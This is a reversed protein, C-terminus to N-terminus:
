QREGFDHWHNIGYNEGCKGFKLLVAIDRRVIESFGETDYREAQEGDHYAKGADGLFKHRRVRHYITQRRQAARVTIWQWAM